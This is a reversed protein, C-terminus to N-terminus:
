EPEKRCHNSLAERRAFDIVIARLVSATFHGDGEEMAVKALLGALMALETDLRTAASTETYGTLTNSWGAYPRAVTDRALDLVFEWGEAPSHIEDEDHPDSFFWGTIQDPMVTM